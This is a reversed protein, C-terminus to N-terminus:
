SARAGQPAFAAQLESPLSGPSGIGPAVSEGSTMPVGTIPEFSAQETNLGAVATGTAYKQALRSWGQEDGPTAELGMAIAQAINQQVQAQKADGLPAPQGLPSMSAVPPSPLVAPDNVLLDSM